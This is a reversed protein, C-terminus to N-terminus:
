KRKGFMSWVNGLIGIPLVTSQVKIGHMKFYGSYMGGQLVDADAHRQGDPDPGTGPTTTEKAMCDILAVPLVERLEVNYKKQCARRFLANFSQFHTAWRTMSDGHVVGAGKTDM